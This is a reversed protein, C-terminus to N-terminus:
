GVAAEALRRCYDLKRAQYNEPSMHDQVALTLTQLAERLFTLEDPSIPSDPSYEAQVCGRTLAWVAKEDFTPVDALRQAFDYATEAPRREYGAIWMHAVFTSYASNLVEGPPRGASYTFPDTFPDLAEMMQQVEREHRQASIRARWPNLWRTVLRSLTTLIFHWLNSFLQGLYHRWGAVLLAIVGGLLAVALLLVILVKLLRRPDARVLELLRQWSRQVAQQEPSAAAKPHATTRSSAPSNTHGGKGPSRKTTKTQGPNAAQSADPKPTSTPTTSKEPTGPQHSPPPTAPNTSPKAPTTPAPTTSPSPPPVSPRAPTSSKLSGTSAPSSSQGTPPTPTPQQATGAHGNAPSAPTTPTQSPTPATMNPQRVSTPTQRHAASPTSSPPPAPTQTPPQQSSEGTAGQTGPTTYKGNPDQEFATAVKQLSEVTTVIVRTTQAGLSRDAPGPAYRTEQGPLTHRGAATGTGQGGIPAYSTATPSPSAQSPPSLSTFPMTWSPPTAARTGTQSERLAQGAQMIPAKPLLLALLGSALLIALMARMWQRTFGDAIRVAGPLEHVRQLLKCLSLLAGILGFFPIAFLLPSPPVAASGDARAVDGLIFAVLGALLLTVLAEVSFRPAPPAAPADVAISDATTPAKPHRRPTPSPEARGSCQEVTSVSLKTAILVYGFLALGHLMWSGQRAAMGAGLCLLPLLVGPLVVLLVRESRPAEQLSARVGLTAISMAMLWEVGLITGSDAYVAVTVYLFLIGVAGLALAPLIRERVLDTEGPENSIWSPL